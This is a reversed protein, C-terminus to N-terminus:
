WGKSKRSVHGIYRKIETGYTKLVGNGLAVLQSESTSKDIAPIIQQNANVTFVGTFKVSSAQNDQWIALPEAFNKYNDCISPYM